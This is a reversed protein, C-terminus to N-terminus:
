CGAGNSHGGGAVSSIVPGLRGRETAAARGRSPREVCLCHWSWTDRVALSAVPESPSGHGVYEVANLEAGGGDTEIEICRYRQRAAIQASMGVDDALGAGTFGGQQVIQHQAIQVGASAERQEVRVAIQRRSNRRLNM